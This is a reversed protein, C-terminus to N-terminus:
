SFFRPAQELQGDFYDSDGFRNNYQKDTMVYVSKDDNEAMDRNFVFHLIDGTELDTKEEVLTNDGEGAFFISPVTCQYESDGERFKTSKGSFIYDDKDLIHHTAILIGTGRNFYWNIHMGLQLINEDRFTRDPVRVVNSGDEGDQKIKSLGAHYWFQDEETM